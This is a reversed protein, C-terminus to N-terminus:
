KKSKKPTIPLKFPSLTAAQSLSPKGAVEDLEEYADAEMWQKNPDWIMKEIDVDPDYEMELKARKNRSSGKAPAKKGAKRKPTPTSPVARAQDIKKAVAPELLDVYKGLSL